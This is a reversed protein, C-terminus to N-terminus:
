GVDETQRDTQADPRQVSSNICIWILGTLNTVSPQCDAHCPALDSLSIIFSAKLRGKNTKAKGTAKHMM